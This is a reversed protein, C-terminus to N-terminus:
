SKLDNRLTSSTSNNEIIEEPPIEIEISRGKKRTASKTKVEEYDSPIISLIKDVLTKLGQLKRKRWAVDLSYVLVSSLAWLASGTAISEILSPNLAASLVGFLILAVFGGYAVGETLPSGLGVRQSIRLKARSNRKSLTVVTAIGSMSTHTWEKKPANEKSKGYMDVGFHHTLEAVVEDWIVDETVNAEFEREEFIHTDNLGSYREVNQNSYEVAATKIHDLDLGLDGGIELLDDMSLGKELESNQNTQQQMEAAKRIIEKVDEESYHTKSM